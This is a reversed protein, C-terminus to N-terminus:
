IEKENASDNLSKKGILDRIAILGPITVPATFKLWEKLRGDTLPSTDINTILYVAVGVIVYCAIKIYAPSPAAYYKSGFGIGM